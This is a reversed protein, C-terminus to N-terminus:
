DIVANEIVFEDFHCEELFDRPTFKANNFEFFNKIHYKLIVPTPIDLEYCIDEVYDVFSVISFKDTKELMFDKAVREDKLLKGWLRVM